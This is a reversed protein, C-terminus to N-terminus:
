RRRRRVRDIERISEITERDAARDRDSKGIRQEGVRGPIKPDRLVELDRKIGERALKGHDTRREDAGPEAKKPEVAMRGFNEHAVGAREGDAAHNPDDRNAAFLLQKEGDDAPNEHDFRDRDDELDQTEFQGASPKEGHRRNMM